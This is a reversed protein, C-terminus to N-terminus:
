IAISIRLTALHLKLHFFSETQNVDGFTRWVSDFGATKDQKVVRNETLRNLLKITKFNAEEYNEDVEITEAAFLNVSLYSQLVLLTFIIQRWVLPTIKFFNSLYRKM